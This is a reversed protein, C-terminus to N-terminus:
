LREQSDFCMATIAFMTNESSTVPLGTTIDMTMVKNGDPEALAMLRSGVAVCNITADEAEQLPLSKIQLAPISGDGAVNTICLVGRAENLGCTVFVCGHDSEARGLRVAGTGHLHLSRNSLTVPLM